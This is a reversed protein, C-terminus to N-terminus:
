SQSRGSAIPSDISARRTLHFQRRAFFVTMWAGDALPMAFAVQLKSFINAVRNRVTKLSLVLEKVIEKNTRGQAILSLVEAERGSQDLSDSEKPFSTRNLSPM